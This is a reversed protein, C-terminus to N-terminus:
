FTDREDRPNIGQSGRNDIPEQRTSLEPPEGIIRHQQPPLQHTSEEVICAVKNLAALGHVCVVSQPSPHYPCPHQQQLVITTTIPPVHPYPPHLDYPLPHHPLSTLWTM